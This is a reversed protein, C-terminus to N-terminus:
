QVMGSRDVKIKTKVTCNVSLSISFKAFHLDRTYFAIAKGFSDM